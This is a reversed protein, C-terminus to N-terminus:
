ERRVARSVTAYHVRFHAGIERLAYSGSLYAQAMVERRDDFGKEFDVLIKELSRRQARPVERLDGRGRMGRSVKEM